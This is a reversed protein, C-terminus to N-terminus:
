KVHALVGLVKKLLEDSTQSTVKIGIGNCTLEISDAISCPTSRENKANLLEMSVPVIAQQIVETPATEICARRVEKMRYYYDAKTINHRICWEDVTMGVPRAKCDQIMHAWEQLRIHRAVKSPQSIM